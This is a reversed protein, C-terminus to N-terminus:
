DQGGVVDPMKPKKIREFLDFKFESHNWENLNLTM